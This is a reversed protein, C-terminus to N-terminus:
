HSQRKLYKMSAMVALIVAGFALIVLVIWVVIPIAQFTSATNTNQLAAEKVEIVLTQSGVTTGAQKVVISGSYLGPLADQKINLELFLTTIQGPNVVLTKSSSQGIEAINTLAVTYTVKENRINTIQVPITTATGQHVTIEENMPRILVTDFVNEDRRSGSCSIVQFPLTMEESGGKFEVRATFPYSKEQAAAPIRVDFQRTAISKREDNFNELSFTDSKFNIGLERNVLSISVRDNNEAGVNRVKVYGKVTDGCAAIEPAIRSERPDIAVAEDELEVNITIADIACNRRENEDDFAKVVLKLEDDEDIEEPDAPVTMSMTFTFDDDEDLTKTESATDAINRSESFLFAETQVRVSNQGNNTVKVEISIEEGPKFDDSNSPEKIDIDLDTGVVGFDCVDPEVDINLTVTDQINTNNLVHVKLPGGFSEFSITREPRLHMNVTTTNEDAPLTPQAPDFSIEIQDDERDRM